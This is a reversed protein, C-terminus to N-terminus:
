SMATSSSSVLSQLDKTLDEWMLLGRANLYKMSIAHRRCAISVLSSYQSMECSVTSHHKSILGSVMSHYWLWFVVQIQAIGNLPIARTDHWYWENTDGSTTGIGNMPIALHQVLVMSHYQYLSSPVGFGNGCCGQSRQAREDEDRYRTFRPAELM